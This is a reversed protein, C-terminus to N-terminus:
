PTAREQLDQQLERMKDRFEGRREAPLADLIRRAFDRDAQQAEIAADQLDALVQDVSGAFTPDTAALLLRDYTGVLRRLAALYDDVASRVDDGELAVAETEAERLMRDLKGVSREAATVDERQLQASLRANVYPFERMTTIVNNLTESDQESSGEFVDAASPNDDSDGCGVVVMLCIALALLLLRAMAPSCLNARTDQSTPTRGLL